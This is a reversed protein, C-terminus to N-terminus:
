RSTLFEAVARQVPDVHHGGDSIDWLTNQLTRALTWATARARDLALVEVMLDFRRLTSGRADVGDWRDHLVPLIDFGPDGRLPKPDIALWPERDGALVNEYHLDWHLLANGPETAVEAVASAWGRVLRADDPSLARVATPVSELMAAVVEGLLRAQPPPPYRHLRVLLDAIIQVAKLPDPESMLDRARLRELLMAEGDAALLRVAGDGDWVRLAEPEGPHEPDLLQLKLVAPTGDACRVPLVLGVYGHMPVGDPALQWRRCFDEACRPLRTAWERGRDGHFKALHAALAAPVEIM